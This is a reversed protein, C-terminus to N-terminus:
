RKKEQAVIIPYYRLIEGNLLVEVQYKGPEPFVINMFKSIVTHASEISKLEFIVEKTEVVVKNDKSSIIRTKEKFRGRGKIWRNSIFLEWRKESLLLGLGLGLGLFSAILIVNSFFAVSYVHAPVWRILSLELFLGLFSVLVLIIKKSM